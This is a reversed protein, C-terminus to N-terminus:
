APYRELLHEIKMVHILTRVYEESARVDLRRARVGYLVNDKVKLHPFLALDQPVYSIEREEPPLSQVEKEGVWIRGKGPRNFGAISELIM